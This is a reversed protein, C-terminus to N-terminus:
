KAVDSFSSLKFVARWIDKTYLAHRKNLSHGEHLPHKRTTHVMIPLWIILNMESKLYNVVAHSQEQIACHLPTLGRRNKYFVNANCKVLEKVRHLQNKLCAYHLASSGSSDIYNVDAKANVLLSICPPAVTFLPTKSTYSTVENVDAKASLLLRAVKRGEVYFIPTKNGECPDVENVNNYPLLSRVAEFNDCEIAHIFLYHNEEVRLRSIKQAQDDMSKKDTVRKMLYDLHKGM